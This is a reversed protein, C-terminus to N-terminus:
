QRCRAAHPAAHDGVTCWFTCVLGAGLSSALAVGLAWHSDDEGQMRVGPSSCGGPVLTRTSPGGCRDAESALDAGSTAGGAIAMSIGLANNEGQVLALAVGSVVTLVSGVLQWSPRELGFIVGFLLVFAPITSRLITHLSVPLYILATNSVGIDMATFFGIPLVRPLITSWRPAPPRFSPWRSIFFALAFLELNQLTAMTFPYVFGTSSLIYKNTFTISLSAGYWAVLWVIVVLCKRSPRGQTLQRM